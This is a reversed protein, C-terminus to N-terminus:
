VPPDTSPALLRLKAPGDQPALPEAIDLDAMIKPRPTIAAKMRLPPSMTEYLTGDIRFRVRLFKEYPEIHIDSAGKRVADTILSNVLKVIPAEEALSGVDTDEEEDEVILLDDEMGKMVDAMSDGTDYFKEL